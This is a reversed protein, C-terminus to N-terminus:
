QFLPLLTTATVINGDVFSGLTTAAANFTGSPKDFPFNQYNINDVVVLKNVQRNALYPITLTPGSPYEADIEYGNCLEMQVTDPTDKITVTIQCETYLTIANGSGCCGTKASVVVDAIGGNTCVTSIKFSYFTDAELHRFTFGSDGDFDGDVETALIWTNSGTKRYFTNIFLYNAPPTWVLMASTKTLEIASLNTVVEACVTDPNYGEVGGYFSGLDVIVQGIQSNYAVKNLTSATSKLYPLYVKNVRSAAPPSTITVASSNLLDVTANPGIYLENLTVGAVIALTKIRTSGLLTLAPYQPGMPPSSPPSAIDADIEVYTITSNIIMVPNTLPPSTDTKKYWIGVSLLNADNLTDMVKCLYANNSAFLELERCIATTVDDYTNLIDELRSAEDPGGPYPAQRVLNIFDQKDQPTIQQAPM